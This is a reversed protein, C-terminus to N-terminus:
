KKDLNKITNIQDAFFGSKEPYKLSLIEFAQIAKDYKKQEVYIRALTETMLNQNETISNVAIDINKQRDKVPSLKPNLEIFRDIISFKDDTDDTKTTTHDLPQTSIKLWESFSHIEDKDFEFPQTSNLQTTPIPIEETVTTSEMIEDTPEKEVTNTTNEPHTIYDFLLTRDSSYSATRKLSQNYKDAAHKKIGRLSLLRATQFYPYKSVIQDIQNTEEQSLDFPHKMINHFEEKTM